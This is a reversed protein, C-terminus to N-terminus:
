QIRKKAWDPPNPHGIWGRPDNQVVEDFPCTGGSCYGNVLTSNCRLCQTPGEGLTRMHQYLTVDGLEPDFSAVREDEFQVEADREYLGERLETLFERVEAETTDGPFSLQAYVQM